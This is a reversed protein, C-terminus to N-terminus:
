PRAHRQSRRLSARSVGCRMMIPARARWLAHRRDNDNVRDIDPVPSEVSARRHTMAMRGRGGAKGRARESEQGQDLKDISWLPVVLGAAEVRHGRLWAQLRAQLHHCWRRRFTREPRHRPATQAPAPGASTRQEIPARRLDEGDIELLDFACLIASAHNRHRRILEFDALGNDDCAIAEGDILCSRGPLAAVAAVVLPFRKTFDNGNRTILRVGAADRRAMIRFGDHKIEHIWDQGSPPVKAPSPLCPEVFGVLSSKRERLLVMARIYPIEAPCL